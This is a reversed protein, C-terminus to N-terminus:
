CESSSHSSKSASSRRAARTWVGVKRGRERRQRRPQVPERKGRRRRRASECRLSVPPEDLGVRREVPQREVRARGVDDGSAVREVHGDREVVLAVVEVPLPDGLEGTLRRRSSRRQARGAGRSQSPGPDAPLADGLILEVRQGPDKADRSAQARRPVSRGARGSRRGRRGDEVALHAPDGLPERCRRAPPGSARAPRPPRSRTSAGRPGMLQARRWGRVQLVRLGTRRRRRTLRRAPGGRCVLLQGAIVFRVAPSAGGSRRAQSCRSPHQGHLPGGWRRVVSMADSSPDRGDRAVDTMLLALQPVSSPIVGTVPWM